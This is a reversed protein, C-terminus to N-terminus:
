IRPRSFALGSTANATIRRKTSMRLSFVPPTLISRSIVLVPPPFISHKTAFHSSFIELTPIHHLPLGRPKYPFPPRSRKRQETTLCGRKRIQDRGQNLLLSSCHCTSVFAVPLAIVSMYIIIWPQTPGPSFIVIHLSTSLPIIEVHM